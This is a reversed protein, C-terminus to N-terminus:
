QSEDEGPVYCQDITWIAGREDPYKALVEERTELMEEGDIGETTFQGTSHDYGYFFHTARGGNGVVLHAEVINREALNLLETTNVRM